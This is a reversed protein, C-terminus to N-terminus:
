FCFFSEMTVFVKRFEIVVGSASICYRRVM